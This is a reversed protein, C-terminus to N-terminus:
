GTQCLVRLVIEVLNSSTVGRGAGRLDRPWAMSSRVANDQNREGAQVSRMRSDCVGTLMEGAVASYM